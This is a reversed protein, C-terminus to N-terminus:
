VSRRMMAVLEVIGTGLVTLAVAWLVVYGHMPLNFPDVLLWVLVTGAGLINIIVAGFLGLGRWRDENRREIWLAIGIGLLVAGLVTVYFYTDVEPLGFFRITQGPIALLCVGLVINIVSALALLRRRHLDKM